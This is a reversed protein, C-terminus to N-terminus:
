ASSEIQELTGKLKSMGEEPSQQGALVANVQQAIAPSQDPWVVTVPRPVANQGALDLTNAYEGWVPVDQMGEKGLQASDPPLLALEKLQFQRYADSTFAELVQLAADQNETNPNLTMNWGGLASATGGTGQFKANEEKTGYPIPMVGLDDGFADHAPPLASPWYRLAVANGDTFASLTPGESWQLVNTPSVNGYGDLTNEADSGHIFSRGMRLAQLVPESDVTVPREGVPGFLNDTGGFYAGGWSTMLENFTCCSLGVYNKAQWVYGFNTGAQRKTESVVQAFRKWSLPNTAWGEEDPSFGAEKVLDKRYQVTPLGVQYPVGYLTGDGGSTADVSAPYYNEKIENVTDEPLKDDLPAIQERKIFPITWGVDMRFIDPKSRGASLWQRFQSQTEGSLGSSSLVSVSIREPLGAEHLVRNLQDQAEKEASSAAVEITVEGGGGSTTEGETEPGSGGGDGDGGDGDGERSSMCGAGAALVGAAGARRVFRRRSTASRRSRSGRTDNSM